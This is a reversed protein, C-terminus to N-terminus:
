FHWGCTVALYHLHISGTRHYEPYQRLTNLLGIHAELGWQFHKGRPFTISPQLGLDYRTFKEKGNLPDNPDADIYYTDPGIMYSFAPGIGLIMRSGDAETRYRAVVFVDTQTMGDPDGGVWGLHHIEGQQGRIGIGPMVSWRDNLRVDLGYSLRLVAGPFEEWGNTGTEVFLGAGIQFNSELRKGSQTQQASAPFLPLLLLTAAFVFKRM